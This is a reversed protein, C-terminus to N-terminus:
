VDSNLYTIADKVARARKRWEEAEYKRSQLEAHFEEIMTLPIEYTPWRESCDRCSRQRYYLPGPFIKVGSERRRGNIIDVNLSGCHPCPITSSM